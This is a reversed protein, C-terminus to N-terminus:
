VQGVPHTALAPAAASRGQRLERWVAAVLLAGVWAYPLCTVVGPDYGGKRLAGAVHHIEAVGFVGLMGPVILRPWGDHLLSYFLFSVTTWVITILVVTAWDAAAPDFWAYYSALSRRIMHFEEIDTLLQEVMHLPGVVTLLLFLGRIRAM